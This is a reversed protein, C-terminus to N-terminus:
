RMGPPTTTALRGPDRDDNYAQESHSTLQELAILEWQKNIIMLHRLAILRRPRNDHRPHKRRTAAAAATTTPPPPTKKKRSRRRRKRSRRRKRRRRSRRKRKRGRRRRGRGRRRRPVPSLTSFSTRNSTEQLQPLQITITIEGGSTQSFPM